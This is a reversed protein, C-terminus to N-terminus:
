DYSGLLTVQRARPSVERLADSLARADGPAAVEIFFRYTWPDGAPRSQISTLSVGHDAFPTLVGVLAGPADALDILLLLRRGTGTADHGARAAVLLFRTQNDARDQVDEVLVHLGYRHAARLSAVSAITQDGYQAVERAAGATDHTAVADAHPLSRLFRQCQALAVPHSIVRRIQDLSTGPVGALCLRIPHIYQALVVFDGSALLDYSPIVSGHISNEVPLVARDAHGSRLATGVDAFDPCPVPVAHEGLLAYAAEESFAGEEGQFAVRLKGPENM